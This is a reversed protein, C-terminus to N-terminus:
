LQLQHRRALEASEKRLLWRLLLVGPSWRSPTRYPGEFVPSFRVDTPMSSIGLFLCVRELVEQPEARLDQSRLLLIHDRPFLEIMRDLQAAYRGRLVYSHKRLHMDSHRGRFWSRLRLPELMVALLLPFREAGRSRQMHYHSVARWVPDRFILIWRMDPNYRAVRAVAGPYMLTAPTADGRMTQAAERAFNPSFIRDIADVDDLDGFGPSDFVHAEKTRPLDISPHRSLYPALASTGSKQAGGVLFRIM